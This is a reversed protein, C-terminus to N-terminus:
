QGSVGYISFFFFSDGLGAALAVKSAERPSAARSCIQQFERARRLVEPDLSWGLEAAFRAAAEAHLVLAEQYHRPVRRYGLTKLRPLNEVIKEVRAVSLYHAMLLEFALQNRPNKDLLAQLSDEVTNEDLVLDKDSMNQRLRSVQPHQELRPDAELLRLMERASQRHFLHKEWAKLFIRATEPCDKVINIVALQQLVAPHDGSAVLAECACREAQNVQGLELFLRSEQYSIGLDRYPQPTYYLDVGPRQPYRFMDDGLRGTHYLALMTNRHCRVTYFGAPLRDVTRLVETWRQRQADYDIQLVSRTLSDQSIWAAAALVLFFVAVSIGRLPLRSLPSKLITAAKGSAGARPGRGTRVSVAQQARSRSWFITGALVTPFFLYLALTPSWRGPPVGPDSFLFGGYAAALPLDFLMAAVGPVVAMGLLAAAAVLKSGGLVLEEVAVLIPFLLSGAGAFWYLPPFALLFAALRREPAQPALRLYVVHASLAALLSLVAQLPHNYGSYIVLLIAAPIYRWVADHPRGARGVIRDTALSACWAVVTVILAGLWGWAYCQSLLRAIYEVMGGLRPLHEQFFSWDTHFSFRHYFSQIGFSHHMLRPDVIQWIYLYYLAFFVGTKVHRPLTQSAKPDTSSM